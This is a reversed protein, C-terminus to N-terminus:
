RHLYSVTTTVYAKLCACAAEEQRRLESGSMKIRCIYSGQGRDDFTQWQYVRQGEPESNILLLSERIKSKPQINTSYM